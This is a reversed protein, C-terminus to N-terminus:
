IGWSQAEWSDGRQKERREGDDYERAAERVDEEHLAESFRDECVTDCFGTDNGRRLGKYCWHCIDKPNDSATM